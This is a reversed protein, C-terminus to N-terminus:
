TCQLRPMTLRDRRGSSRNRPTQPPHVLVTASRHQDGDNRTPRSERTGGVLEVHPFPSCATTVQIGAACKDSILGARCRCRCRCRAKWRLNRPFAGMVALSLRAGPPVDATADASAWGVM